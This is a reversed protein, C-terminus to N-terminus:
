ISEPVGPILLVKYLGNLYVAGSARMSHNTKGGIRAEECMDKIMTSLTNKGVAVNEYWAEGTDGPTKKKPRLSVDKQFAYQPLKSM